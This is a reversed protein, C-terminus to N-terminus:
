SRYKTAATSLSLSHKNPVVSMVFPPSLWTTVARGIECFERKQDAALSFSTVCFVNYLCGLSFVLEQLLVCKYSLV